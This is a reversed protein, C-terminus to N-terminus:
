KFTSAEAKRSPQRICRVHGMCSNPHRDRTLKEIDPPEKGTRPRRGRSALRGAGQKQITTNAQREFVNACCKCNRDCRMCQRSSARTADRPGTDHSRRQTAKPNPLHAHCRQVASQLNATALSGLPHIQNARRCDNIGSSGLIQKHDYLLTQRRVNCIQFRLATAWPLKVHNQTRVACLRAQSQRAMQRCQGCYATHM